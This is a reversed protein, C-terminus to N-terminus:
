LRSRLTFKRAVEAQLAGSKLHRSLDEVLSRLDRGQALARGLQRQDMDGVEGRWVAEGFTAPLM